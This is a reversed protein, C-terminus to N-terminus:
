RGQQQLYKDVDPSQPQAADAPESHRIVPQWSPSHRDSASGSTSDYTPMHSGLRDFYDVIDSCGSVTTALMVAATIYVIRRSKMDQRLTKLYKFAPFL